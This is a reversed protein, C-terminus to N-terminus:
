RWLHNLVATALPMLLMAVGILVNRRKEAAIQEDSRGAKVLQTAREQVRANEEIATMRGELSTTRAEGRTCEILLRQIDGEHQCAVTRGGDLREPPTDDTACDRRDTRERDREILYAKLGLPDFAPDDYRPEAM